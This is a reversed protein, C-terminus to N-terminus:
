GEISFGRMGESGRRKAELSRDAEVDNGIEEGEKGALSHPEGGNADEAILMGDSLGAYSFQGSIFAV